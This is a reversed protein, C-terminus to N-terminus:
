AVSCPKANTPPFDGAPPSPVPTAHNGPGTFSPLGPGLPGPREPQPARSQPLSIGIRELSEIVEDASKSASLKKIELLDEHQLGDSRSRCQGPRAQPAPQLARVSLNLEELPIQSEASPEPELGPEEVHHLSALPQFLAILKIAAQAQTRRPHHRRQHHIDLRLRERASGGEGV